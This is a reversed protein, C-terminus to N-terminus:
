VGIIMEYLEALAQECVTVDINTAIVTEFTEALGLQTANIEEQNFEIERQLDKLSYEKEVYSIETGNVVSSYGNLEEPIVSYGDDNYIASFNCSEDLFITEVFAENKYIDVSIGIVEKPVKAYITTM